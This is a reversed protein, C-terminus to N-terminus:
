KNIKHADKKGTLLEGGRFTFAKAVHSESHFSDVVVTYYIKYLNSQETSPSKQTHLGFRRISGTAM